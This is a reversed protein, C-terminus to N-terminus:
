ETRDQKATQQESDTPPADEERQEQADVSEDQPIEEEEEEAQARRRILRRQRQEAKPKPVATTRLTPKRKNRILPLTKSNTGKRLTVADSAIDELNWNAVKEGLGYSTVKGTEDNQILAIKAEPTIMVGILTLPVEQEPAPEDQVAVEPAEPSPPRRTAYFLPREIIPQYAVLPKVPLAQINQSSNEATADAPSSATTLAPYEPRPPNLWQLAILALLLLWLLLLLINTSARATASM